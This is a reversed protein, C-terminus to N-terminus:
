ELLSKLRESNVCWEKSVAADVKGTSTSGTCGVNIVSNISWDVSLLSQVTIAALDERYLVGTFSSPDFSFGRDVVLDGQVGLEGIPLSGVM